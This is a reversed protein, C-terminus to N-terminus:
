ILVNLFVSNPNHKPQVFWCGTINMIFMKSCLQVNGQKSNNWTYCSRSFYLSNGELIRVTETMIVQNICTWHTSIYDKVPPLKALFVCISFFLSQRKNFNGLDLQIIQLEWIFEKTQPKRSVNEIKSIREWALPIKGPWFKTM